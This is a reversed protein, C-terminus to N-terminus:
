TRLPTTARHKLINSLGTVVISVISEGTEASYIKLRRHLSEPIRLTLQKLKEPAEKESEIKLHTMLRKREKEDINAVLAKLEKMAPEDAINKKKM